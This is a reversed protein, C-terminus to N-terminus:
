YVSTKVITMGQRKKTERYTGKNKDWKSEVCHGSCVKLFM